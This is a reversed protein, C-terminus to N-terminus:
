IIYNYNKNNARDILDQITSSDVYENIVDYLGQWFELTECYASRECTNQKDRLCAVPALSGECVRLVEGVTCKDPNVCLMYGGANGRVSRIYGAKSLIAAVQELYKVSIGQRKSIDKLPVPVGSSHRGIDIMVRLAYRGKTSIM